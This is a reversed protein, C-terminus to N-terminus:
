RDMAVNARTCDDPQVEDLRTIVFNDAHMKYLTGLIQNKMYQREMRIERDTTPRSDTVSSNSAIHVLLAPFALPDSFLTWFDKRENAVNRPHNLFADQARIKETDRILDISVWGDTLKLMSTAFDIFPRLFERSANAIKRDVVHVYYPEIKPVYQGVEPDFPMDLGLSHKRHHAYIARDAETRLRSKLPIVVTGNSRSVRLWVSGNDRYCHYGMFNNAFSISSGLIGIDLVAMEPTLTLINTEYYRYAYTTDNVKVVREHKRRRDGVPRIDNKDGRIPKIDEYRRKINEFTMLNSHGLNQYVRHFYM